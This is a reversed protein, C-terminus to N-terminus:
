KDLPPNKPDKGFITKITEVTINRATENTLILYGAKIAISIINTPALSSKSTMHGGKPQYAIIQM